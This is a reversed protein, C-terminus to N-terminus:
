ENSSCTFRKVISNKIDFNKPIGKFNLLPSPFYM